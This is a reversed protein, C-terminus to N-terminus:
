DPASTYLKKCPYKAMYVAASRGETKTNAAARFIYPHLNEPDTMKTTKPIPAIYLIKEDKSVQTLALGQSALIGGMVFQVKENLILEKMARTADAPTGKADRVVLKLPQGLVGGKENIEAVAIEAGKLVPIGYYTAPGTTPLPAGVLIPSKQADASNMLVFPTLGILFWFVWFKRM